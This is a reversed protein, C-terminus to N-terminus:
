QAVESVRNALDRIAQMYRDAGRFFIDNHDAGDIKLLQKDKGSAAQFLALGDSFPIIHDHEAHIILTPRKCRGIKDINGFGNTESFGFREVDVGLLRLLPAAFAFGSEIILGEVDNRTAALELASASGLSRGMVVMPGAYGRAKLFDLFYDLIAHCDALMASVTPHGNSLGYGRYDAVLFNLGARNYIPAIDDYDAVIEGNGHFFLINVAHAATLHCAAGIRVDPAVPILPRLEDAAGPDTWQARPHFIAASVEPHDLANHPHSSQTM